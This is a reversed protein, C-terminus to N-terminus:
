WTRIEARAPTGIATMNTASAAGPADELAGAQWRRRKRAAPLMCPTSWWTECVRTSVPIRSGPAHRARRHHQLDNQDLMFSPRCEFKM